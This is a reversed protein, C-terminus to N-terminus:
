YINRVVPFARHLQDQLAKRIKPDVTGSIDVRGLPDRSLDYLGSPYATCEFLYHLRGDTRDFVGRCPYEHRRSNQVLSTIRPKGAQLDRGEWSAPQPLGVAAAVTAAIDTQSAFAIPPYTRRDDYIFLPIRLFEPYLYSGHAYLGHEGLAEGHDSSIVVIADDLYGKGRLSGFIRRIMDDTQRLGNDYANIAAAQEEPSLTNRGIVGRSRAAAELMSLEPEYVRHEPLKRGTFHSSMLFVFLFHPTSGAPPLADVADLVQRDDTGRGTSQGDRLVNFLTSDGYTARLAPQVLHSGSLLFDIQYGADKLLAHLAVNTRGVARGIPNSLLTGMVGCPTESCTSVAWEAKWLHGTSALETLFPTTQRAYGYHPFHDARLSDGLIVVVNRPAAPVLAQASRALGIGLDKTTDPLTALRLTDGYWAQPRVMLQAWALVGALCFAFAAMGALRDGRGRGERAQRSLVGSMVDLTQVVSRSVPWALATVTAAVLVGAIAGGGLVVPQAASMQPLAEITMDIVSRDLVMGLFARSLYNAGYLSLLGLVLLSFGITAVWRTARMGGGSAREVVRLPWCALLLAAELGGVLGFQQLSLRWYFPDDTLLLRGLIWEMTAAALAVGVFIALCPMVGRGNGTRSIPETLEVMRARRLMSRIWVPPQREFWRRDVIKRDRIQVAYSDSIKGV